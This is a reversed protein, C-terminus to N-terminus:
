QTLFIHSFARAGYNPGSGGNNRFEMRSSGEFKITAAVITTYSAPFGGDSGGSFRLHHTPLYVHGEVRFETNGRMISEQRSEDRGSAFVLGAMDGSPPASLDVVAAGGLDVYADNMLLFAVHQGYVSGGGEVLLAGGDIFYTGSKFTVKAGGKITIGGCYTGPWLTYDGPKDLVLGSATCGLPAAPPTWDALPDRVPLCNSRAEPTVNLRRTINATGVACNWDSSVTGSGRGDMSLQTDANSWISCGNAVVEGSLGFEIGPTATPDLALVCADSAQKAVAYSVVDIDPAKASVAKSFHQQGQENLAVRVGYPRDTSVTINAVAAAGGNEIIYRRAVAEAVSAPSDQNGGLLSDVLARAGALSAFDAASALDTRKKVWTAFDVSLALCGVIAMLCLAFIIATTGRADSMFRKILPSVTRM